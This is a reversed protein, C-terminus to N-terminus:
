LHHNLHLWFDIFTFFLVLCSSFGLSSFFLMSSFAASSFLNGWSFRSAGVPLLCSECTPLAKESVQRAVQALRRSDRSSESLVSTKSPEQNKHANKKEGNGREMETSVMVEPESPAARKRRRQFTYKIVRERAPQSHLGKSRNSLTMDLDKSPTDDEGFAGEPVRPLLSDAFGTEEVKGKFGEDKHLVRVDSSKENGQHVWKEGEDPSLIPAVTSPNDSSHADDEASIRRHLMSLELLQDPRQPPDILKMTSCTINRRQKTSRKRKRCFPQFSSLKMNALLKNELESRTKAEFSEKPSDTEGPLCLEKDLLNRECARIRQTCGNRYLGPEKYNNRSVISPLDRNSIHSSCMCDKKSYYCKSCEKQQSPNLMAIESAVAFEDLSNPHPFKSSEYSYLTTPVGGSSDNELENVNRLNNKKLRELEDHVEGLEQRLDRVIDGAEQLQAELEEIKKQQKLTAAEVESTQFLLQFYSCCVQFNPHFKSM